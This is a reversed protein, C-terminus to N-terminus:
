WWIQKENEYTFPREERGKSINRLWYLGNRPVNKYVLWYEKAIQKGMSVWRNDWYLLEYKEGPVINNDDTRPCYEIAKVTVPKELELGIWADIVAPISIYTLVKDDFLRNLSADKLFDSSIINGNIREGKENYFCLEALSLDRGKKKYRLYKFKQKNNIIIKTSHSELSDGSIVYLEEADSFDRRNAGEFVGGKMLQAFEKIRETLPNKRTLVMTQTEDKDINIERKGHTSLIFPNGLSVLGDMTYFSPLYLIGYGVNEGRFQNIGNISGLGVNRFTAKNKGAATYAIPIWGQRSFLSLYAIKSLRHDYSITFDTVDLDYDGTVDIKNLNAFEGPIVEEQRYKFLVDDKVTEFSHRYVKAVKNGAWKNDYLKGKVLTELNVFSNSPTIVVAMQHGINNSGWIPVVDIASPIGLARLIMVQLLVADDCKGSLNNRMSSYSKNAKKFFTARVEFNLNQGIKKAVEIPDESYLIYKSYKHFCEKKWIYELPENYIRYPLVYNYFQDQSYLKSWPVKNWVLLSENLSIILSDAQLIDIDYIIDRGKKRNRNYYYQFKSYDIINSKLSSNIYTNQINVDDVLSYQSSINQIIFNTIEKELSTNSYKSVFKDIEKYQLIEACENTPVCSVLFFSFLISLQNKMM